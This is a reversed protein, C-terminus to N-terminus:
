KMVKVVRDGRGLHFSGVVLDLDQFSLGIAEPVHVVELQSDVVEM